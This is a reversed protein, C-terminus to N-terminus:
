RIPCGRPCLREGSIWAATMRMAPTSPEYSSSSVGGSPTGSVTRRNSRWLSPNLTVIGCLFATMGSRSPTDSAARRQLATFVTNRPRPKLVSVTPKAEAESWRRPALTRSSPVPPTASVMAASLTAAPAPARATEEREASVAREKMEERRARKGSERQSNEATSDPASARAAATARQETRSLPVGTPIHGRAPPTGTGGSDM